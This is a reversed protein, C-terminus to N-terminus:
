QQMKQSNGMGLDSEEKRPEVPADKMAADKSLQMMMVGASEEEGYMAPADKMAALQIRQEM